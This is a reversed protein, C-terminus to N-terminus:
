FWFNYELVAYAPLLGPSFDHTLSMGARLNLDHKGFSIGGCFGAQFRGGSQRFWGDKAGEYYAERYYDTHHLRTLLLRHYQLDAAAFWKNRYYGPQLGFSAELTNGRFLKNRSFVTGAGITLPLQWHRAARLSTGLYLAAKGDDFQDSGAVFGLEGGALVPQGAIRFTHGYRLNLTTGLNLGLAAGAFNRGPTALRSPHVFQASASATLLCFLAPFFLTRM